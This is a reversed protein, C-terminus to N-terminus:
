NRVFTLRNQYQKKVVVTIQLPTGDSSFALHYFFGCGNLRACDRRYL